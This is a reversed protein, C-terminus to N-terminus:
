GKSAQNKKQHSVSYSLIQIPLIPLVQLHSISRSFFFEGKWLSFFLFIGSKSGARIEKLSLSNVPFTLLFIGRGEWGTREKLLSLLLSLSLRCIKSTNPMSRLKEKCGDSQITTKVNERRRFNRRRDVKTQLHHKRYKIQQSKKKELVDPQRNEIM